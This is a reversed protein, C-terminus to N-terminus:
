WGGRSRRCADQEAKRLEPWASKAKDSERKAAEVAVLHDQYATM